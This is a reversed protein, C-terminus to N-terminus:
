DKTLVYLIGGIIGATALPHAKALTVVKEISFPTAPTVAVSTDVARVSPLTDSNIVVPLNDSTIIKAPNPPSSSVDVVRGESSIPIPNPPSYSYIPMSMVPPTYPTTVPPTYPTDTVIPEIPQQSIIPALPENVISEWYSTPARDYAQLEQVAVPDSYDYVDAMQNDIIGRGFKSM